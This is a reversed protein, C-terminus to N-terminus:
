DEDNILEAEEDKEDEMTFTNKITTAVQDLLSPESAEDVEYTEPEESTMLNTEFSFGRIRELLGKSEEEDVENEEPEPEPEPKKAEGKLSFNSLKRLLGPEEKNPNNREKARKKEEAIEEHAISKRTSTVVQSKKGKMQEFLAVMNSVKPADKLEADDHIASSKVDYGEEKKGDFRTLRDFISKEQKDEVPAQQTHNTNEEESQSFPSSIEIGTLKQFFGQEEEKEEAELLDEKEDEEGEMTATIKARIDSEITKISDIFGAITGQQQEEAQYLEDSPYEDVQHEEAHYAEYEM